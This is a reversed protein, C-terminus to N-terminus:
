FPGRFFNHFFNNRNPQFKAHWEAQRDFRTSNQLFNFIKPFDQGSIETKM